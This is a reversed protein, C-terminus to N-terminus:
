LGNSSGFELLSQALGLSDPLARPIEVYATERDTSVRLLKGLRSLFPRSKEM